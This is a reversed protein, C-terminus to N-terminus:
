IVTKTIFNAYYGAPPVTPTQVSRDLAGAEVEATGVARFWAQFSPRINAHNTTVTRKGVSM